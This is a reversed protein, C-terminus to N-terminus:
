LITKRSIKKYVFRNKKKIKKCDNKNIFDKIVCFGHKELKRIIEKELSTTIIKKESLLDLHNLFYKLRMSILYIYNKIFNIM